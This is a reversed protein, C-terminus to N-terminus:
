EITDEQEPDKEEQTYEKYGIGIGFCAIGAIIPYNELFLAVGLVALITITFYYIKM